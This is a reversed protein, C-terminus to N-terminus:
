RGNKEGGLSLQIAEISERDRQSLAAEKDAKPVVYTSIVRKKSSYAKRGQPIGKARNHRGM